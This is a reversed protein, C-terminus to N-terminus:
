QYKFDENLNVSLSGLDPFLNARTIGLSALEKKLDSKKSCPIKFRKLVKNNEGLDELPTENGFLVFRANQVLMRTDIQDNLMAITKLDPKNIGSFAANLIPIVFQSHDLFLGGQSVQTQLENLSKANLAWLDGNTQESESVVFFLAILPSCTWDLLRTKLGYHQMLFLWKASEEKGPCKDYRTPAEAMFQLYLSSENRVILDVNQNKRFIGPQLKWTEDGQGRWWIISTDGFSSQTSKAIDLVQSLNEILDAM